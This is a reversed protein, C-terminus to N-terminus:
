FMLGVTSLIFLGQKIVMPISKTSTLEIDGPMSPSALNLILLYETSHKHLYRGLYIQIFNKVFNHLLNVNSYETDNVIYHM